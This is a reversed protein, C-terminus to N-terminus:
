RGYRVWEGITKTIKTSRLNIAPLKAYRAARLTSGFTFDDATARFIQNPGGMRTLSAKLGGTETPIDRSKKRYAQVIERHISTQIPKVNAARKALAGVKRDLDDFGTAKAPM